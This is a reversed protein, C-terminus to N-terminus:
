YKSRLERIADGGYADQTLNLFQRVTMTGQEPNLGHEKCFELRGFRCSGTLVSHWRFLDEHTAESDLSPYQNIFDAIRESLPQNQQYKALADAYAHKATDGHAFYNGVKAIYCPVLITNKSLTYGQAINGHINTIITPVGDIIFVDHNRYKKIGDGNGYGYGNGDGDGYGDGYGYGDSNDVQLFALIKGKLIAM